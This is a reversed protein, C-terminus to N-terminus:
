KTTAKAKTTKKTAKKTKKVAAEKQDLVISVHSTKKRIPFASGRARPMRRMLVYGQNVAVAKVYLNEEKLDYNHKANAIASKLLKTIPLSARKGAFALAALADTVRKGRVLNAL